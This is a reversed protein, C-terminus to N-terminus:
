AAVGPLARIGLEEAVRGLRSDLTALPVRLALAIQLYSADYASLGHARALQVVQAWDPEVLRVPLRLAATFAELIRACSEAPGRSSKSLAVQALEYRVLRPALLRRSGLLASAKVRGPENFAIASLVSADCIVAGSM